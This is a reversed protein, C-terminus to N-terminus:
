NKNSISMIELGVSELCKKMLINDFNEGGFHTDGFSFKIDCYVGEDKKIFQLLTLDLTGGGFDLVTILKKDNELSNIAYALSAAIPENIM